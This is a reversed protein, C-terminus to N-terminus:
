SKGITDVSPTEYKHGVHTRHIDRKTSSLRRTFTCKVTQLNSDFRELGQGGLNPHYLLTM